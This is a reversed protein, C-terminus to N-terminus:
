QKDNFVSFFPFHAALIIPTGSSGCESLTENLIAILRSRENTAQQTKLALLSKFEELESQMIAVKKAESKGGFIWRSSNKLAELWSAIM